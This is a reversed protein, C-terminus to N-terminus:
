NVNTPAMWSFYDTNRLVGYLILIIILMYLIWKPIKNALKDKKDFLWIYIKYITYILLFPLLIFGLMNYRFAQYFDLHIISIITRTIGCGPCYVHFTERIPCIIYIHYKINIIYIIILILIAAFLEFLKKKNM